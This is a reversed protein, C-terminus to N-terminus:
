WCSGYRRPRADAAHADVDGRHDTHGRGVAFAPQRVPRGAPGIAAFLYARWRCRAPLDTRHADGLIGAGRAPVAVDHVPVGGVRRVRVGRDDDRVRVPHQPLIAPRHVPRPAAVRLAPVRRVGAGRHGRRRRHPRRGLGDGSGRHARLRHRVPVGHWTGSRGPRRRADHGVQIGPRLDRDARDRAACIPLNIWFVARWDVLEILAGGVIPGLAMSIGVVGGWVGIARAREVRGTFVQTIISMAVPNLM